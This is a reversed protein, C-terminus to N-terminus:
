PFVLRLERVRSAMADHSVGFFESLSRVDAEPPKYAALRLSVYELSTDAELNTSILDAVRRSEAWLAEKGFLRHFHRRVTREPMLFERAFIRAENEVRLADVGIPNKAKLKSRTRYVTASGCELTSRHLVAHGIEHAITFAAEGSTNEDEALVIVRQTTDCKGKIPYGYAWGIFPVKELDWNLICDIFEELNLPFLDDAKVSKGADIRAQRYSLLLSRAQRAIDPAQLNRHM